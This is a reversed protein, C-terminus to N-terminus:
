QMIKVDIAFSKGNTKKIQGDRVLYGSNGNIAQVRDREKQAAIRAFYAEQKLYRMRSKVLKIKSQFLAILSKGEQMNAFDAEFARLQNKLGDLEATVQANKEKLATIRAELQPINEQQTNISSIDEKLRANETQAQTLMNRTQSLMGKTLTLETSVTDLQRNVEELKRTTEELQVKTENYKRVYTRYDASQRASSTLALDTSHALIRSNHEQLNLVYVTLAIMVVSLILGTTRKLRAKSQRGDDTSPNLKSEQENLVSEAV